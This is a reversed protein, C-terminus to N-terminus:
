IIGIFGVNKWALTKERAYLIAMHLTSNIRQYIIVENSTVTILWM